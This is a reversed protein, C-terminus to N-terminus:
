RTSLQQHQSIKISADATHIEALADDCRRRCWVSRLRDTRDDWGRGSSYTRCVVGHVWRSAQEDLHEIHVVGDSTVIILGHRTVGGSSVEVEARYGAFAPCGARPNRSASNPPEDACLDATGVFLAFLCVSTTM